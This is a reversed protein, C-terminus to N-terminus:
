SARWGEARRAREDAVTVLRARLLASVLAAVAAVSTGARAALEGVQIRRERVLVECAPRHAVPLAFEQDVATLVVQEDRVDLLPPRVTALEVVAEAPPRARLVDWPLGATDRGGARRREVDFFDRLTLGKAEDMFADLLREAQARQEQPTGARALSERVSVDALARYAVWRLWDYGTPRTFAFTLHLSSEGGGRVTHWWGRPVHIVDGPELTREFLVAAPCRAPDSDGYEPVPHEESPGHVRWSKTGLVQVVFTDVEDFHSDLAQSDDFTVFLNCSAAEGVMRMVDDTAARIAPHIRDLSDIILSVGSRMLAFTKTLDVVRHGARTAMYAHEPLPRGGACLTLEAPEVRGRSLIENLDHWSFHEQLLEPDLHTLVVENSLQKGVFDPGFEVAM